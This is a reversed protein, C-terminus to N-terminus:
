PESRCYSFLSYITSYFDERQGEEDNPARDSQSNDDLEPPQDEDVIAPISNSDLFQLARVAM